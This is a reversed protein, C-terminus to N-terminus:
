DRHCNDLRSGVPNRNDLINHGGPLSLNELPQVNQSVVPQRHGRVNHRPEVIHAIRLGEHGRARVPLARNRDGVTHGPIKSNFVVVGGDAARDGVSCTNMTM